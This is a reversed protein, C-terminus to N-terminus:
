RIAETMQIRIAPPLALGFAEATKMNVVLAFARPQRMPIEAPSAGQLVQAVIGALEGFAADLDAWYTMLCGAEVHVRQECVAPMRQAVLAEALASRQRAIFVSSMQVLGQAGWKRADGVARTLDAQGRVAFARSEIGAAQAANELARLADRSGGTDEWLIAVRRLDPVVTRLLDLKRAAMDAEHFSMGTLNGGPRALSAAFGLAVADPVIAVIPISTTAQRLARVAPPTASVIVDPKRAVIEAALASLRDFRGGAWRVDLVFDRGEVYGNERMGDRFAAVRSAQLAEDIGLFAVRRLDGARQADAPLAVSALVLLGALALRVRPPRPRPITMIAFQERRVSSRV